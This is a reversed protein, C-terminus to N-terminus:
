GRENRLISAVAFGVLALAAVSVMPRERVFQEARDTLRSPNFEDVAEAAQMLGRAASRVYGATGSMGDQELSYSGADIARGISRVTERTWDKGREAADTATSKVDSVAADTADQASELASSAADRVAEGTQDAADSVKRKTKDVLTEPEPKAQQQSGAVTPAPRNPPLNGANQM